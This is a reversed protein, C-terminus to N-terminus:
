LLEVRDPDVRERVHLEPISGGHLQINKGIRLM